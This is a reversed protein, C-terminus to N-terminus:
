QLVKKNWSCQQCKPCRMYRTRCFHPAWCIQGWSPIYKHHCKACQYYGATREIWLCAGIGVAFPIVGLSILVVRTWIPMEVLAAVLVCVILLIAVVVGILIELNLLQRDKQAVTAKQNSNSKM